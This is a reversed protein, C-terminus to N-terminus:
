HRQRKLSKLVDELVTASSNHIRLHPIAKQKSVKCAAHVMKHSTVDTFMLIYDPDGIRKDLDREMKSFVKLKCGYKKAVDKYIREMREHGGVLVISM